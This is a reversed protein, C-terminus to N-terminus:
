SISIANNWRSSVREEDTLRKKKPPSQIHENSSSFILSSPTSTNNTDTRPSKPKLNTKTDILPSTRFIKQITVEPSTSTSVLQKMQQSNTVSSSCITNNNNLTFYCNDSNNNNDDNPITTITIITKTTPTTNHNDVLQSGTEYNTQQTLHSTAESKESIMERINDARLLEHFSNQKLSLYFTM